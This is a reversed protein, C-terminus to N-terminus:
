AVGGAPKPSNAANSKLRRKALKATSARIAAEIALTDAGSETLRYTRRFRGDVVESGVEEILGDNTLREITRYLTATAPNAGGSTMGEVEQLIAYGHRPEDALATLVLFSLSSINM